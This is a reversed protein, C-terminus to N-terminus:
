SIIVVIIIIIIIIIVNNNNNNSWPPCGQGAGAGAARVARATSALGIYM